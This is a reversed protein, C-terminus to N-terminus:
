FLWFPKSGAFLVNDQGASPDTLQLEIMVGRKLADNHPHRETVEGELVSVVKGVASCRVLGWKCRYLTAGPHAAELNTYPVFGVVVKENRARYYFNARLRELVAQQATVDEDLQHLRLEATKKGDVAGERDLVAQDLARRPLAAAVSTGAATISPGLDAEFSTSTAIVRDYQALDAATKARDVELRDLRDEAAQVEAVVAMVKDHRPGLIVPRVWSDNFFYFISVIVWFVLGILIAGLAVIGALKYVRVIMQQIAIRPRSARAATTSM